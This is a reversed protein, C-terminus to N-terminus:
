TTGTQLAALRADLSQTFTLPLMLDLRAVWIRTPGDAVTSGCLKVADKETVVVDEVDATWPLDIWPYHDPLAHTASLQLGQQRLAEFFRDPVAIGAAAQVFRGRLSTWGGDSAWPASRQWDSLSQVGGLHRVAVDGPLCLSAVGASFLVLTKDGLTRPLPERLPGAPLCHGNGAGREDVVAIEIDRWLRHHQLGDDAVVINVRADQALLMARALRRNRGVVVPVQARRAILLPEDGIEEAMSRWPDVRTCATAHGGYGRSIVGPRWGAAKLHEILSLTTPTKGAGGVVWNGVVITPVGDRALSRERAATWRGLMRDVAAAARYLGSLPLLLIAWVSPAGQSPCWWNSELKAAWCRAFGSGAARGTIM